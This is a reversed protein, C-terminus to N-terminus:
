VYQGRYNKVQVDLRMDYVVEYSFTNFTFIKNAYMAVVMQLYTNLHSRVKNKLFFFVLVINMKLWTSLM